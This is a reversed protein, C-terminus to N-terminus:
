RTKRRKPCWRPCSNVRSDIMMRESICVRKEGNNSGVFMCNECKDCRPLNDVYNRYAIRRQIARYEDIEM